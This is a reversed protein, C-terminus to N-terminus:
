DGKVIKNKIKIVVERPLRINLKPFASRIRKYLYNNNSLFQRIKKNIEETNDKSEKKIKNKIKNLVNFSIFIDTVIIIFLVISIIYIVGLNFSEILKLVLPHLFYLGLTGALGFEIFTELCVRGNINLFDNTYDWWRANFIKEMIYSTIYELVSCLIAIVLFKIIFNLEVYYLFLIILLGSGYIPCYPGILFGRNVFKKKTILTYLVELIWGIISYVVFYLFYVCISQLM